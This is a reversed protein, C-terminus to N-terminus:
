FGPSLEKLFKVASEETSLRTSSIMLNFPLLPAKPAYVIEVRKFKSLM